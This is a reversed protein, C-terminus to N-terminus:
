RLSPCSHRRLWSSTTRRRPATSSAAGKGTAHRAAVLVGMGGVGLVKDVRYKGALAARTSGLEADRGALAHPDAHLVSEVRVASDVVFAPAAVSHWGRAWNVSRLCM